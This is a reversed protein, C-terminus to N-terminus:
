VNARKRSWGGDRRAVEVKPGRSRRDRSLTGIVLDGSTGIV